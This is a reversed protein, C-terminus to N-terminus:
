HRRTNNKLKHKIFKKVSYTKKNKPVVKIKKKKVHKGKKTKNNKYKRKKKSLGRGYGTSDYGSVEDAVNSILEEYGIMTDWELYDNIKRKINDNINKFFQMGRGLRRSLVRTGLGASIIQQYNEKFKEISYNIFNQPLCQTVDFGLRAAGSRAACAVSWQSAIEESYTNYYYTLAVGTTIAGAVFKLYNKYKEDRSAIEEIRNKLGQNFAIIFDKFNTYRQEYQYGEDLFEDVIELAKRQFEIEDRNDDTIWGAGDINRALAGRLTVLWETQEWQEDYDPYDGWGQSLTQDDM